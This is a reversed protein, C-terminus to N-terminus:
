PTQTPQVDPDRARGPQAVAAPPPAPLQGDQNLTNALQGLTEPTPVPDPWRDGPESQLPAVGDPEGTLRNVTLGHEEAHLNDSKVTQYLTRGPVLNELAEPPDFPLPGACGTLAAAASLIAAIQGARHLATM